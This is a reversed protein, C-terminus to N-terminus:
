ITADDELVVLTGLLEDLPDGGLGAFGERLRPTGV